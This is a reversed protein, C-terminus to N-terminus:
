KFDGFITVNPIEAIVWLLPDYCTGTGVGLAPGDHLFLMSGFLGTTM